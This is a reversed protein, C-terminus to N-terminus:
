QLDYLANDESIFGTNPAVPRGATFREARSEAHGDVYVVNTRGRHRYGQAGAHRAALHSDSPSPLPSRMFKNAGNAWQGDGFL